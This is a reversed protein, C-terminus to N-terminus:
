TGPRTTSLLMRHFTKLVSMNLSYARNVDGAKLMEQEVSVNNGSYFVDWGKENTAQPEATSATVDPAMHGPKTVSMQLQAAQMASDFPAIDMARYGPTNANAINNAVVAQRQSLWDDHRSALDFLQIPQM